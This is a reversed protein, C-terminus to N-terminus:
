CAVSFSIFAVAAIVEFTDLMYTKQAVEYMNTGIRKRVQDKACPSTACESLLFEVVAEEVDESVADKRQGRAGHALSIPVHQLRAGGKGKGGTRFRSVHKHGSVTIEVACAGPESCIDDSEYGSDYEVEVLKGRGHRCVVDDGVQLRKKNAEIAATIEARMTISDKFPKGQRYVGLAAAVPEEQYSGPAPVAATLIIRYQQRQQESRCQKLEQLVSRLQGVILANTQDLAVGFDAVMRDRINFRDIISHVISVLKEQSGECHVELMDVIGVGRTGLMRTSLVGRGFPTRNEPDIPKSKLTNNTKLRKATSVQQTTLKVQEAACKLQGNERQFEDMQRRQQGLEKELREIEAASALFPDQPATCSPTVVQCQDHKRKIADGILTAKALGNSNGVSITQQKKNCGSCAVAFNVYVDRLGKKKVTSGVRQFWPPAFQLMAAHPCPKPLKQQAMEGPQITHFKTLAKM